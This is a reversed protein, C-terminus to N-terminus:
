EAARVKRANVPDVKIVVPKGILQLGQVEAEIMPVRGEILRRFTALRGEFLGGLLQLADGPNFESLRQGAEIQAMRAAYEQEIRAAYAQFRRWEGEGIWAVTSFILRDARAQQWQEPTMSAFIYNAWVPSEVISPHRQKPLRILDVKRPVVAFAGMENLAAEVDFETGRPAYGLLHQTM